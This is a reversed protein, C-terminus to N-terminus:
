GWLLAALTGLAIPISFHLTEKRVLFLQNKRWGKIVKWIAAIGGIFFSMVLITVTKEPFFVTVVCLLKIDGAGLGHLVFLIFLVLLVAGAMKVSYLLGKFGGQMGAYILGAALGALVLNNEIKEQRIDTYVVRAFLGALVAVKIGELM